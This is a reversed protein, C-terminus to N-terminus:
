VWVFTLHKLFCRIGFIVHRLANNHFSRKLQVEMLQHVKWPEFLLIGNSYVLTLHWHIPCTRVGASVGLLIEMPLKEKVGSYSTFQTGINRIMFGMLKKWRYFIAGLDRGGLSSNWHPPFWNQM